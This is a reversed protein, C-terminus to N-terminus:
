AEKNEHFKKIYQQFKNTYINPHYGGGGGGFFFAPPAAFNGVGGV